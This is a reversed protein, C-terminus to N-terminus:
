ESVTYVVTISHRQAPPTRWLIHYQQPMTVHFAEPEGENVDVAFHDSISVDSLNGSIPQIWLSVDGRKVQIRGDSLLQPKSLTHLPYSVEVPHDAEVFDTITLVNQKMEFWRQWRKLMPYACSLDLAAYKIGEKEGCQLIQGTARYDSFGQGVGDILLANHARTSNLWERHHKTGYARGFYGSPSILAYGKYFLAFSGQDPHRHSGSGYRTAHAM